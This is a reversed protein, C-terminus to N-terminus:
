AFSERQLRPLEVRCESNRRWFGPRRFRRIKIAELDLENAVALDDVREFARDAKALERCSVTPEKEVALREVEQAGEILVPVRLLFAPRRAWFEELLTKAVGLQHPEVRQTAMHFDGIPEVEIEGVPEAEDDPEVHRIRLEERWGRAFVQPPNKAVRDGLM